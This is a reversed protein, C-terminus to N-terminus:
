PRSDGLTKGESFNTLNDLDAENYNTGSPFLKLDTAASNIQGFEGDLGACIIQFKTPNIAKAGGDAFFPQAYYTAGDATASAASATTLHRNYTRAEIYIYPTDKAFKAKYSPIGDTEDDILRKEDFEYYSNRVAAASADFPNAPNSSIMRLWMVLAEGQDVPTSELTTYFATKTAAPMKPYCRQLHREVITNYRNAMSYDEGFSPPYEGKAQKYTDLGMSLQNIEMSIAARRASMVASYVAPLLLGILIGIIGLVVLMEVLTFGRSASRRCTNM